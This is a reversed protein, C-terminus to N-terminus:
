SNFCGLKNGTAPNSDTLPTKEERLPTQPLETTQCLFTSFLINRTSGALLVRTGDAVMSPSMAKEEVTWPEDHKLRLKAKKQLFEVVSLFKKPPSPPLSCGGAIRQERIADEQNPLSTAM